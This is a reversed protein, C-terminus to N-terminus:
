AVCASLAEGYARQLRTPLPHPTWRHDGCSALPRIGRISNCSFAASAFALDGPELRAEECRIGLAPCLLDRLLRRRTGAIGSADLVPTVLVEDRLLFINAATASILAGGEDMVLLDDLGRRRCEAVALVQELRNLHKLGALLPQRSWRLSALDTQQPAGAAFPDSPAPALEIITRAVPHVPPAYGRPGEGRTVTLRVTRWREDAPAAALAQALHQQWDPEPISLAALGARLRDGHLEPWALSRGRALFTEFLGDGYALGRDPLPLASAPQGDVFLTASV